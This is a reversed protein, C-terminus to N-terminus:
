QVHNIATPLEINRRPPLKAMARCVHIHQHRQAGGDGEEEAREVGKPAVRHPSRAANFPVSIEIRRYHDNGKNQCAAQQLLFGFVTRRGRNALHHAHRRLGGMDNLASLYLFDRDRCYFHPIDQLYTGALFHRNVTLNYRRFAEHRCIGCVDVLTHNRSLRGRCLLLLPCLYQGSRYRTLSLETHTGTLDTFVRSQGM